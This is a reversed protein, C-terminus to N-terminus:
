RNRDRRRREPCVRVAARGTRRVPGATGAQLSRHRDFGAVGGGAAAPKQLARRHRGGGRRQGRGNDRRGRLRWGRAFRAAERRRVGSGLRKRRQDIGRVLRAAAAIEHRFHEIRQRDVKQGHIASRAEAPQVFRDDVVGAIPRLDEGARVLLDRYGHRLAVCFDLAPRHGHGAMARDAQLVGRHRDVVGPAVPYRDVHHDAVDDFGVLAAQAGFPRM